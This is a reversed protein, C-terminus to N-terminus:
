AYRRKIKAHPAITQVASAFAELHKRTPVLHSPIETRDGGAMVYSRAGSGLPDDLELALIAHSAYAVVHRALRGQATMRYVVWRVGTPEVALFHKAHHSLGLWARYAVMGFAWTMFFAMCGGVWQKTFLGVVSMLALVVAVGGCGLLSLLPM